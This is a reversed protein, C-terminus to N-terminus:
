AIWEIQQRTIIVEQSMYYKGYKIMVLSSDKLTLFINHVESLAM